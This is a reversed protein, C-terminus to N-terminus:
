DHLQELMKKIEAERMQRRVTDYDDAEVAIDSGLKAILDDVIMEVIQDKYKDYMLAALEDDYKLLEPIIAEVIEDRHENVDFPITQVITDGEFELNAFADAVAKDLIAQFDAVAADTYEASASEAADAKETAIKEAEAIIADHDAQVAEPAPAATKDASGFIASYANTNPKTVFIVAGVYLVLVILVTLLVLKNKKM